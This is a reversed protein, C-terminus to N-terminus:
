ACSIDELLDQCQGGKIASNFFVEEEPMLLGIDNRSIFLVALKPLAKKTKKIFQSAARRHVVVVMGESLKAVDKHDVTSPWEKGDIAWIFGFTNVPHKASM